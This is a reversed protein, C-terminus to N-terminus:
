FKEAQARKHRQEAEQSMKQYSRYFDDDAYLVSMSFSLHPAELVALTRGARYRGYVDGVFPVVEKEVKYRSRLINMVESVRSKDLTMLVAALVKEKNFILKLEQLGDIDVSQPDVTVMPGESWRNVDQQGWRAGPLKTRSEELTVRGIELGLPKMGSAWASISMAIGFLFVGATRLKFCGKM